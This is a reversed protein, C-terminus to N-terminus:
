VSGGFNHKSLRIFVPCTMFVSEDLCVSGPCYVNGERCLCGKAGRFALCKAFRCAGEPVHGVYEALLDVAKESVHDAPKLLSDARRFTLKHACIM